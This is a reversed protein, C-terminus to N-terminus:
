DVCEVFEVNRLIDQLNGSEVNNLGQSKNHAEYLLRALTNDDFYDVGGSNVLEKEHCKLGIVKESQSASDNVIVTLSGPGAKHISITSKLKFKKM